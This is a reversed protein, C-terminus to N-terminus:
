TSPAYLELNSLETVCRMYSSEHAKSSVNTENKIAITTCYIDKLVAGM